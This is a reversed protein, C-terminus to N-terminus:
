LSKQVGDAPISEIMNENKVLVCEGYPLGIVTREYLRQMTNVGRYLVFMGVAVFLMGIHEYHYSLAPWSPSKQHGGRTAALAVSGLLWPVGLYVLMALWWWWGPRLWWAVAITNALVAALWIVLIFLAFLVQEIMIEVTFFREAVVLILVMYALLILYLFHLPKLLRLLSAELGGNVLVIGRRRERLVFIVTSIAVVLPVMYITLLGTARKEEVFMAKLMASWGMVLVLGAAFCMLASAWQPRIAQRLAARVTRRVDRSYVRMGSNAVYSAVRYAEMDAARIFLSPALKGASHVLHVIVLVTVLIVWFFALAEGLHSSVSRDVIMFGLVYLFGVAIIYAVCVLPGVLLIPWKHRMLHFWVKLSACAAGFVVHFFVVVVLLMLRFDDNFRLSGGWRLRQLQEGWVLSLGGVMVLGLPLISGIVVAWFVSGFAMERASLRTIMLEELRERTMWRNSFALLNLPFGFLAVVVSTLLLGIGWGTFFNSGIRGIVPLFMDGSGAQFACLVLGSGTLLGVGVCVLVQAVAFLLAVWGLRLPSGAVVLPNEAATRLLRWLTRFYERRGIM